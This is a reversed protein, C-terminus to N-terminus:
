KVMCRQIHCDECVYLDPKPRTGGYGYLVNKCDRGFVNGCDDCKIGSSTSLSAASKLSTM